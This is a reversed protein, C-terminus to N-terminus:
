PRCHTSPKKAHRRNEDVFASLELLYSVLSIGTDIHIIIVTNYKPALRETYSKSVPFTRKLSLLGSIYTCPLPTKVIFINACLGSPTFYIVKKPANKLDM